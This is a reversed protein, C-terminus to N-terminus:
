KSLTFGSMVNCGGGLGGSCSEQWNLLQGNMYCHENQLSGICSWAGNPGPDNMTVTRSGAYGIYAGIDNLIYAHGSAYEEGHNHLGLMINDNTNASASDQNFLPHSCTVQAETV